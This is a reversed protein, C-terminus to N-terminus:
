GLTRGHRTHTTKHDADALGILAHQTTTLAFSGLARECELPQEFHKLRNGGATSQAVAKGGGNSGARRHM